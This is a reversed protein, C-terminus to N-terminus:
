AEYREDSHEPRQVLFMLKTNLSQGLFQNAWRLTYADNFLVKM